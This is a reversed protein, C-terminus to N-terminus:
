SSAPSHREAFGRILLWLALAIHSLALPVGMLTVSGYGLFLPLTIGTTHLIVTLLGFAALLRPVLAFRYLFSYLVFFWVDIVLLETYHAWRRTARVAEGLTQFLEPNSAGEATYQQSLSLMSLIHANDVAQMSFWIISLALFWLAMRYSYDRLVPFATIAIGLTVAGNVFLHFVAIKIQVAIGAANELFGSTAIPMLLIFPVMLGVLQVLLLIGIIRGISNITRM